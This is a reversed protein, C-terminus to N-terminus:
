QLQHTARWVAAGAGRVVKEYGMRLALFEERSLMIAAPNIQFEELPQAVEQSGVAGRKDGCTVCLGRHM